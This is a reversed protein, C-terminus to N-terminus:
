CDRSQRTPLKALGHNFGVQTMRGMKQTSPSGSAAGWSAGLVVSPRLVGFGGVLGACSGRLVM